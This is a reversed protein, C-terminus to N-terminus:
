RNASKRLLDDARRLVENQKLRTAHLKEAQEQAERQLGYSIKVADDSAKLPKEMEKSLRM